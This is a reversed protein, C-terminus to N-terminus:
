SPGQDRNLYESISPLEKFIHHSFGDSFSNDIIKEFLVLQNSVGYLLKPKLTKISRALQVFKSKHERLIDKMTANGNLSGEITDIFKQPLKITVEDIPDINSLDQFNILGKM